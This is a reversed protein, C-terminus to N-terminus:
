PKGANRPKIEGCEASIWRGTTDMDMREPKGNHVSNVIAHGTFAKDSSFRIEGEGSSPDKGACAWKVKLSNSTRSVVDQKCEGRGMPPPELREAQEKTVCTRATMGQAGMGVGNKAMMQEVMKRQDPPLAAMQAQMQAMSKEMDGSQSKFKVSHEWLGPSMQACAGFSALALVLAALAPTAKM